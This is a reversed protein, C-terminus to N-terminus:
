FVLKLNKLKRAISATATQKSEFHLNSKQFQRKAISAKKCQVVSISGSIPVVLENESEKCDINLM